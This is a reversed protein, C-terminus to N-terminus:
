DIIEALAVLQNDTLHGVQGRKLVAWRLQKPPPQEKGKLKRVTDVSRTFVQVIHFWDVTIAANPLHKNVGSIFAPSMDCVVELVQQPDGGHSTLLAAFQQLTEKGRRPAVFLAPEKRRDMDIFMM